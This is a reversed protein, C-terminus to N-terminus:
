PVRGNPNISIFPPKKVDEFGFSKIKYPINLEELIVIVKWPNPGSPTLWVTIPKLNTM